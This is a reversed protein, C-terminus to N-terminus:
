PPGNAITVVASIAVARTVQAARAERTAVVEKATEVEKAAAMMLAVQRWAIVEVAAGTRLALREAARSVGKRM